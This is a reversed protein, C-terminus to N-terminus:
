KAGEDFDLRGETFGEASNRPRQIVQSLVTQRDDQRLIGHTQDPMNGSQKMLKPYVTSRKTPGIIFSAM